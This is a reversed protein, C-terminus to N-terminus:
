YEEAGGGIKDTTQPQALAASESVSSHLPMMREQSEIEAQRLRDGALGMYVGASVLVVALIIFMVRRKVFIAHRQQQAAM